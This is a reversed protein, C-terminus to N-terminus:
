IQIGVSDKNQNNTMRKTILTLTVTTSIQTHNITKTQKTKLVYIVVDLYGNMDLYQDMHNIVIFPM